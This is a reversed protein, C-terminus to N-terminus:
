THNKKMKQLRKGATKKMMQQLAFIQKGHVTMRPRRKRDRRAYKKEMNIGLDEYNKM